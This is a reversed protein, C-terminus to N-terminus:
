RTPVTRIYNFCPEEFELLQPYGEENYITNQRNLNRWIGSPKHWEQNLVLTYNGFENPVNTNKSFNIWTDTSIDWVQITKETLNRDVDYMNEERQSNIFENSPINYQQTISELIDGNGDTFALNYTRLFPVDSQLSDNYLYCYVSDVVYFESSRENVKKEHNQNFDPLNIQGWPYNQSILLLPCLLLQVILYTKNM